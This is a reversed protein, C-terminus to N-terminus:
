EYDYCFILLPGNLTRSEERRSSNSLTLTLTPPPSLRHSRSWIWFGGGTNAGAWLLLPFLPRRQVIEVFGPAGGGSWGPKREAKGGGRREGGWTEELRKGRGRYGAIAREARQRGAQGRSPVHHGRAAGRRAVARRAGAEEGWKQIRRGGGTEESRSDKGRVRSRASRPRRAGCAPLCGTERDCEMWTRGAGRRRIRRGGVEGFGCAGRGVWLLWGAWQETRDGSIFVAGVWERERWRWCSPRARGPNRGIRYCYLRM